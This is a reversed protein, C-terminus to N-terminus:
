RGDPDRTAEDDALLEPHPADVKTGPTRDVLRALPLLWLSSMLFATRLFLALLFLLFVVILGQAVVSGAGGAGPERLAIM